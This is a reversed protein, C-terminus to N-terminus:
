WSRSRIPVLVCFGILRMIFSFAIYM